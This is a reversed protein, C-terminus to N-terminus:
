PQRIWPNTSELQAAISLLRAENGTAAILQAGIPLGTGNRGVPISIAPYRLLNAQPTFPIFESAELLTRIMGAGRLAGVKIPPTALTPSLLLDYNGFWAAFRRTAGPPPADSVTRIWQLLRGSRAVRSTRPELLEPRPLAAADEAVGAMFRALFSTVDALRWPPDVQTVTHGAAALTAATSETAARTESDVRIWPAPAQLTWGIRLPREPEIGVARGAMVDLMVAADAVTTAIPGFESMGLWNHSISPLVGPGPKLGVLGCCASPIRISGGGDSGVAIPVMGAAVAAASGGSSGGATHEPNWPNRTDGFTTTETFPWLCLEPVNTKGIVLAGAARLRAVLESDSTALERSTASSGNATPCGAVDLHDKIAVPVGALPLDALDPREGLAIAETRVEDTRVLRFANLSTDREAIRKLHEEVVDLPSVQHARVAAAIDTATAGVWRYASM